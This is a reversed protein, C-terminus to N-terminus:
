LAQGEYVMSEDLAVLNGVFTLNGRRIGTLRATAGFSGISMNVDYVGISTLVHMTLDFTRRKKDEKLEWKTIRGKATVGGVGNHGLGNNSGIQIVARDSDVRIFNILSSVHIRQGVRNQLFDSEMVFSRNELMQKNMRHRFEKKEVRKEKRSLEVQPMQASVGNRSLSFVIVILLLKLIHKM